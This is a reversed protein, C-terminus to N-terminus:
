SRMPEDLLRTFADEEGPMVPLEDALHELARAVPAGEAAPLEAELGFRKGEDFYWWSLFRSAQADRADQISTPRHGGDQSPRM